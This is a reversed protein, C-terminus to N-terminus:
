IVNCLIKMEYLLNRKARKLKIDIIESYKKNNYITFKAIIFKIM